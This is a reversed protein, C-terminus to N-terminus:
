QQETAEAALTLVCWKRAMASESRETLLSMYFKRLPDSQVRLLARRCDCCHDASPVTAHSNTYLQCLQLARL